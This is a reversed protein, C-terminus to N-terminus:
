PTACNATCKLRGPIAGSRNAATPTTFRPRRAFSIPMAAKATCRSGFPPALSAAHHGFIDWIQPQQICDNWATWMEVQQKDRWYFGNAVVGHQEPLKGTSMNAQVPCTVCPFSPTLIAQEGHRTLERLHPM